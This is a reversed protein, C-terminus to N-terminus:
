STYTNWLKDLRTFWDHRHRSTPHSPTYRYVPMCALNGRGTHIFPSGCHMWEKVQHCGHEVAAGHKSGWQATQINLQETGSGRSNVGPFCVVICSHNQGGERVRKEEGRLMRWCGGGGRKRWWARGESQAGKNAKWRMLTCKSLSAPSECLQSLAFPHDHKWPCM